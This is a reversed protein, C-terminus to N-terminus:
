QIMNVEALFLNEYQLGGFEAWIFRERIPDSILAYFRLLHYNKLM